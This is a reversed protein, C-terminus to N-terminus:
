SLTLEKSATGTAKELFSNSQEEKELIQEGM